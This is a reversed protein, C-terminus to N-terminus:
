LIHPLIMQRPILFDLIYMWIDRCQFLEKLVGFNSEIYEDYGKKHTIIHSRQYDCADVCHHFWMHHLDSYQFLGISTKCTFSDPFGLHRVVGKTTLLLSGHLTSLAIYQSTREWNRLHLLRSMMKTPDRFGPKQANYKEFACKLKKRETEVVSQDSPHAKKYRRKLAHGRWQTHVVRQIPTSSSSLVQQRRRKGSSM